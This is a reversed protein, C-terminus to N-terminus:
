VQLTGWLQKRILDWNYKATNRLSDSLPMGSNLALDAYGFAEFVKKQRSLVFSMQVYLFGMWNDIKDLEIGSSEDKHEIAKKLYFEMDSWLENKELIRLAELYGTKFAPNVETSKVFYGLAEFSKGLEKYSLGCYYNNLTKWYDSMDELSDKFIGVAYNYQKEDFKSKGYKFTNPTGDKVQDFILPEIHRTGRKVYVGRLQDAMILELEPYRQTMLEPTLDEQRHIQYKNKDVEKQSYEYPVIVYIQGCKNILRKILAQAKEVEIHELVDGMMIIDYYDFDFDNVDSLFVNKYKSKLDFQEIYPEFAEVADMNSFYRGLYFNWRGDWPGIDLVRSNHDHEKSIYDTLASELRYKPNVTLLGGQFFWTNSAMRSDEPNALHAKTGFSVATAFDGTRYALLAIKDEVYGPAFYDKNDDETMEKISFAEKYSAIASKYNSAKEFKEGEAIYFKRTHESM